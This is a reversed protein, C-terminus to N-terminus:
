QNDREKIEKYHNDLEDFIKKHRKNLRYQSFIQYIFCTIGSIAMLLIILSTIDQLTM